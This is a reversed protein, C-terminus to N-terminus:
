EHGPKTGEVILTEYDNMFEGITNLRRGPETLEHHETGVVKCGKLELSEATIARLSNM